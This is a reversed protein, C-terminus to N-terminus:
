EHYNCNVKEDQVLENVPKVHHPFENHHNDICEQCGLYQCTQCYLDVDSNHLSCKKKLDKMKSQKRYLSALNNLALNRPLSDSGQNQEFSVEFRCKPCNFSTLVDNNRLGLVCHRCLNHTCPLMLPDRFLELCVCCTLENEMTEMTTPEALRFGHIVLM